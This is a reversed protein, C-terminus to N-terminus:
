KIQLLIQSTMQMVLWKVESPFLDHGSTAELVLKNASKLSRAQYNNRRERPKVQKLNYHLSVAHTKGWIFFSGREETFRDSTEWTDTWHSDRVSSAQRSSIRFVSSRFCCWVRRSSQTRRSSKLSIISMKPSISSSCVAAHSDSECWVWRIMSNVWIM